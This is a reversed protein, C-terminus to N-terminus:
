PGQDHREAPTGAASPPPGHPIEARLRTGSGAPSDLALRGGLAEVRDALGRLGAGEKDAGGVGDDDVDVVIRQADTTARVRALLAAIQRVKPTLRM